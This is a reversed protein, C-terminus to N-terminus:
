NNVQKCSIMATIVRTHHNYYEIYLLVFLIVNTKCREHHDTIMNLQGATCHMRVDQLQTARVTVAVAALQPQCYKGASSCQEGVASPSM